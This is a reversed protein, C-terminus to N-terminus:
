RELSFVGMKGSRGRLSHEGLALSRIGPPMPALESMLDASVVFQKGLSKALGELRSTTNLVDGLRVIKHRDVGIEATMVSGCHLAGRFEPVGGFRAIWKDRTREIEDLFDFLCCVAVANRTGAALPWSVIAMDGIYDDITGRHHRVPEALLAFASALLELVREDGHEQAFQTSGVLDIFLFVRKERLPRHYRGVILNFFTGPGVIDRVRFVAAVLLALLLAYGFKQPLHEFIPGPVFGIARLLVTAVVLGFLYLVGFMALTAAAYVPTASARIRNRVGPLFHGREYSLIPVGLFLGYTAAYVPHGTAFLLAYSWGAVLSLLAIGLLLGGESRGGRGSNPHRARLSTTEDM